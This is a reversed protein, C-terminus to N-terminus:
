GRGGGLRIVSVGEYLGGVVVWSCWGVGLCFKGWWVFCSVIVRISSSNLVSVSCQYMSVSLVYMLITSLSLLLVVVSFWRSPSTPWSSFCRIAAYSFVYPMIAMESFMVVVWWKRLGSGVVFVMMHGWGSWHVGVGFAVDVLAGVGCVVVYLECVGVWVGVWVALGVGFYAPVLGFSAFPYVSPWWVGDFGYVVFPAVGFGEFLGVVFVSVLMVLVCLVRVMMVVLVMMLVMRAARVVYVVRLVIVWRWLVWWVPCSGVLQVCGVLGVVCGWCLVWCCVGVFVFWVGVLGFGGFGVWVGVCGM